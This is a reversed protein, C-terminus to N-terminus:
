GVGWRDDWGPRRQGGVRAQLSSATHQTHIDQISSTIQIFPILEDIMVTPSYETNRTIFLDLMGCGSQTEGTDGQGAVSYKAPSPYSGEVKAQLVPRDDSWDRKTRDGKKVGSIYRKCSSYCYLWHHIPASRAFVTRRAVTERVQMQRPDLSVFCERRALRRM